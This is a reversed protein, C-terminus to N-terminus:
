RGLEDEREVKVINNNYREEGREREREEGRWRKRDSGAFGFDETGMKLSEYM